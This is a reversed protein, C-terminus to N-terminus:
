IADWIALGGEPMSVVRRGGPGTYSWAEFAPDAGCRLTTRGVTLSLAGDDSIGVQAVEANVLPLLLAVGDLGYPVVPGDPATAVEIPGEFTVTFDETFHLQADGAGLRLHLLSQGVLPQALATASRPDETTVSASLAAGEAEDPVGETTV